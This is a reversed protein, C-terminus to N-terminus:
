SECAPAPFLAAAAVGFSEAAPDDPFGTQLMWPVTIGDLVM